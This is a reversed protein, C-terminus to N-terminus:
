MPSSYIGAMAEYMQGPYEEGNAEYMSKTYSAYEDKTMETGNVSTYYDKKREPAPTRMYSAYREARQRRMEEGRRDYERLMNQYETIDSKFGM